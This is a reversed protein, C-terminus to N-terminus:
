RPPSKRKQLSFFIKEKRKRKEKSVHGRETQFPLSLDCEVVPAVSCAASQDLKKLAQGRVGGERRGERMGLECRAYGGEAFHM